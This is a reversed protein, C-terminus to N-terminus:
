APARGAGGGGGACVSRRAPPSGLTSRYRSGSDVRRHRRRGRPSRPRRRPRSRCADGAVEAGAAPLQELIELPRRQLRQGRPGVFVRLPLLAGDPEVVVDLDVPMVVRHGVPEQALLDPRARGLLRDLDEVVALADGGMQAARRVAAVGGQAVVHRRAMPAVGVPGRLLDPALGRRDAGAGLRQDGRDQALAGMGLLAEAGAEADQPQGAGMRGFPELGGALARELDARAGVGRDVRDQLGAEIAPRGSGAASPGAIEWGLM